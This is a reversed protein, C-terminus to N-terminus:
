FERREYFVEVEFWSGLRKTSRACKAEYVIM